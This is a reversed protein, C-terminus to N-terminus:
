TLRCKFIHNLGSYGDTHGGAVFRAKRTFDMKVDFIVHCRIEQYGIMSPEKGTRAQEPSVGDAATWAVKVKNMEKGLAKRWFDTGTEDDIALAEAVTEATQHRVQSDDALLTQGECCHPEAKTIGHTGVLQISARKRDQEGNCIGCNSGPLFRKSREPTALRVIRGEM